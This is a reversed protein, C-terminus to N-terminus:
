IEESSAGSTSIAINKERVSVLRKIRDVEGHLGLEDKRVYISGKRRFRRVIAKATSQNLELQIAARYVSIREIIVKEIL